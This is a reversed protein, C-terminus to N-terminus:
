LSLIANRTDGGERRASWASDFLFLQGRGPEWGKSASIEVITSRRDSGFSESAFGLKAKVDLGLPVDETRGIDNLETMVRFDDEILQFGVWPYVLKRGPPLLLPNPVDPAVGFQHEDYT